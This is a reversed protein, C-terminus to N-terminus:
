QSALWADKDLTKIGGLQVALFNLLSEKGGIDSFNEKSPIPPGGSKGQM